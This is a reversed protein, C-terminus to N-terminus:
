SWAVSRPRSRRLGSPPRSRGRSSITTSSRIALSPASYRFFHDWSYIVDIGAQDAWLWADRYAEWTTHQPRIQVGIKVKAM